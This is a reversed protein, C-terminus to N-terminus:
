AKCDVVAGASRAGGFAGGDDCAVDAVQSRKGRSARREDVVSARVAKISEPGYYPGACKPCVWSDPENALFLDEFPACCNRCKVRLGACGACMVKDNPMFWAKCPDGQPDRCYNCRMVEAPEGGYKGQPQDIEAYGPTEVNPSKPTQVKSRMVIRDRVEDYDCIDMGRNTAEWAEARAGESRFWEGVLIVVDCRRMMELDGELIVADDVCGGMYASNKHPCIVAYGSRWARAAAREALQINRHVDFETKARYPGAIYALKM